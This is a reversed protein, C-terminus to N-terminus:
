GGTMALATRSAIGLSRIPSQKALIARLSLHPTTVNDATNSEECNQLPSTVDGRKTKGREGLKLPIEWSLENVLTQTLIQRNFDDGTPAAAPRGGAHVRAGEGAYAPSWGVARV